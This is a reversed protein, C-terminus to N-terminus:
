AETPKTEAQAKSRKEVLKKQAQLTEVDSVTQQLIEAVKDLTDPRSFLAISSQLRDLASNNTTKLEYIETDLLSKLQKYDYLIDFVKIRLEVDGSKFRELQNFIHASAYRDYEEVTWGSDKIAIHLYRTLFYYLLFYQKAGIREKYLQPIALRTESAIDEVGKDVAELCAGATEAVITLKDVYPIYSEVRRVMEETVVFKEQQNNTAM